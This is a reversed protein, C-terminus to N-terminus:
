VIEDYKRLHSTNVSKYKMKPEKNSGSDFNNKEWTRVCAQWDKIKTKGIMWGKAAYSDIFKQPDIGNKRQQCYLEVSSLSPPIINKHDIIDKIAPKSPKTRVYTCTRTHANHSEKTKKYIPKKLVNYIYGSGSKGSGAKGTTTKSEFDSKGTTTEDENGMIEYGQNNLNTLISEEDFQFPTDTYLWVLGMIKKTKSHRIKLRKLYGYSELEFLGTLIADRKEYVMKKISAVCSHWGEKNSLLLCLYAKAKSSIDPNRLLENPIMTFDRRVSCNIADPISTIKEM